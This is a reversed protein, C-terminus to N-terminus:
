LKGKLNLESEELIKDILEYQEELKAQHEDNNFKKEKYGIPKSIVKYKNIHKRLFLAYDKEALMMFYDARFEADAKYVFLLDESIEM